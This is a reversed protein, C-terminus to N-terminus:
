GRPGRTKNTAMKRAIEKTTDGMLEPLAALVAEACEIHEGYAVDGGNFYPKLMEALKDRDIRQGWEAPGHDIVRWEFWDGQWEPEVDFSAGGHIYEHVDETTEFWLTITCHTPNYTGWHLEGDEDCYYPKHWPRGDESGAEGWSECSCDWDAHCMSEVPQTCTMSYSPQYGYDDFKITVTHSM